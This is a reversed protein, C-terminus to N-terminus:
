VIIVKRAGAGMAAHHFISSAFGKLDTRIDPGISVKITPPGVFGGGLVKRVGFRMIAELLALSDDIEKDEFIRAERDVVGESPPEGIAMVRKDSSLFVVPRFQAEKMECSFRFQNKTATLEVIKFYM